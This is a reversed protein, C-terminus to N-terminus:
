NLKFDRPMISVFPQASCTGSMVLPQRPENKNCQKWGVSKLTKWGVSKRSHSYFKIPEREGNATPMEMNFAQLLHFAHNWPKVPHFGHNRSNWM